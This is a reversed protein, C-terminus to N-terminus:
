NTTFRYGVGYISEILTVGQCVQDLKRRLNKIHTDVARDTVVRYDSYMSNMLQERSFVRGPKGNLTRLLSFEVPTLNLAHGNLHATYQETD